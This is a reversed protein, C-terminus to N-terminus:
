LREPTTIDNLYAESQAPVVCEAYEITRKKGEMDTYKITFKYLADEVTSQVLEITAEGNTDFEVEFTELLEAILQAGQTSDIKAGLLDRLFAYIKCKSPETPTTLTM